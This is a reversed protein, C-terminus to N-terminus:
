LEERPIFEEEPKAAEPAPEPQTESLAAYASAIDALREQVKLLMEEDDTDKQSKVEREFWFSNEKHLSVLGKKKPHSDPLRSVEEGLRLITEELEKVKECRKIWKAETAKTREYKEHMEQIEEDTLRTKDKTISIKEANPLIEGSESVEHASVEVDGSSSLDFIVKIRKQGRPLNNDPMRLDFNGIIKTNGFRKTETNTQGVVIQVSKQGDVTTTFFKEISNPLTKGIPVVVDFVDSDLKIGMNMATADLLGVFKDDDIMGELSAAYYAAGESVCTDPDLDFCHEADKFYDMLLRRVGFLRSSGGVYLINKIEEEGKVLAIKQIIGLSDNSDKSVKNDILKLIKRYVGGAACLEELKDATLELECGKINAGEQDIVLFDTVKEQKGTYNPTVNNRLAEKRIAEDIINQKDCLKIKMAEVISRLRHTTNISFTKADVKLKDEIQRVFESYILDNINGGGLFNDGVHAHVVLMDRDEGLGLYSMDLTGGGFDFVLFSKDGIDAIKKARACTYAYAIAASTPENIIGDKYVELMSYAAADSTETKQDGSFYAPVTIVCMRKKGGIQATEDGGVRTKNWYEEFKKRLEELVLTSLSKPTVWAIEKGQTDVISIGLVRKGINNDFKQAITYNVNEQTSKIVGVDEKNEMLRALLPKFRYLCNKITTTENGMMAVAPWGVVPTILGKFAKSIWIGNYFYHTGGTSSKKIREMEDKINKSVDKEEKVDMVVFSPMSIKDDIKITEVTKKVTDFFSIVSNTTGLDIGLAVKLNDAINAKLLGFCGCAALFAAARKLSRTVQM